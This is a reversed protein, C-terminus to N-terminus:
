VTSWSVTVAVQYKTPLICWLYLAKRGCALAFNVWDNVLDAM